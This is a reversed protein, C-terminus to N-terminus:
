MQYMVALGLQPWVLCKLAPCRLLLATGKKHMKGSDAPFFSVLLPVAVSFLATLLGLEVANEPVTLGKAGAALGEHHEPSGGSARSGADSRV